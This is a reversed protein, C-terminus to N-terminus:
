KAVKVVEVKHNNSKQPFFVKAFNVYNEEKHLQSQHGLPPNIFYVLYIPSSYGQFLIHNSVELSM